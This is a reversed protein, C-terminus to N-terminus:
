EPAANTTLLNKLEDPTVRFHQVRYAGSHHLYRGGSSQKFPYQPTDGSWIVSGLHMWRWPQRRDRVQVRTLTATPHM